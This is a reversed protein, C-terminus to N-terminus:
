ITISHKLAFEILGMFGKINFLHNEYWLPPRPVQSEPYKSRLENEYQELVHRGEIPKSQNSCLAGIQSGYPRKSFYDDAVEFSLQEVTGEVRM